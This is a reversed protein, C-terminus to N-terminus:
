TTRGCGDGTLYGSFSGDENHVIIKDYKSSNKTVALVLKVVCSKCVSKAIPRNNFSAIWKDEVKRIAIESM